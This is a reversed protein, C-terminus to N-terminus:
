GAVQMGKGMASSIENQKMLLSTGTVPLCLPQDGAAPVKALAPPPLHCQAQESGPKGELEWEATYRCM